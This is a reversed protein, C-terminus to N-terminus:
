WCSRQTIYAMTTVAGWSSVRTRLFICLMRFWWWGLANQVTVHLAPQVSDQFKGKRTMSWRCLCTLSWPWSDWSQGLLSQPPLLFHAKWALHGDIFCISSSISCKVGCFFFFFFIWKQPRLWSQGLLSFRDTRSCELTEDALRVELGLKAWETGM